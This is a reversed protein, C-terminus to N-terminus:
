PDHLLCWACAELLVVYLPCRWSDVIQHMYVILNHRRVLASYCVVHIVLLAELDLLAVRTFHMRPDLWLTVMLQWGVDPFLVQKSLFALLVLLVLLLVRRLCVVDILGIAPLLRLQRGLVVLFSRCGRRDIVKVVAAIQSACSM